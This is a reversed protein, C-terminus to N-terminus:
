KALDILVIDSNERSSDFVIAKGDPTIDFAATIDFRGLRSQNSLRTLPRTKKTALDLVWFNPSQSRPLYVLGTGNPLFRHVGPRGQVPPMEVPAGDERVGLLPAIQGTVLAGGYVILNGTPSWVPNAAQGAVLRVPAGGDVPIKFLAPGQTDDNGGTVIWRGDPSWDATGQIDISEALGRLGTGDASMIALRRRREKTLVVAVRSGDRSVAPPDFLAGDAGTRIEFSRGNEFRWLGDATGRASLYFLSTGGFRPALARATPMRYPQVDRDEAPRDLIPVTWLSATPNVITAVVRRGDRSAAVSTYQELGWSVRRTVKTDPDLRWLWPGSGDPARAVYLLTHRDLPALFTVATNQHTLREPSGGSPRLRWVDMEDTWNLQHQFGHVFYLWQDDPSWVPNHNHMREAVGAWEAPDSPTINIQRADGATRDALFLVDGGTKFFALRAGDSSWSPAADGEGLFARPTGGALPIIMKRSLVPDSAVSFWIAAGDGSFGFSRILRPTSGLSPINATLNRFEGTGVQSLWIDYEGDKDAVFAVFKGDPSIEAGGESGEWDTFRSFTASALPNEQSTPPRRAAWVGVSVTVAAFAIWPLWAARRRAPIATVGTVDSAGPLVERIADIEIRVDGIDRLRQKPDKALSRLLVRRVAAPTATPLASWDPERELIKGITDSATEGAFPVRATLMEYLVCGFAWIDTRKDIAKGRAQEPSMYAVTGLMVGDRTGGITVTPSQTLDPASADASIPKALGFDLVKVVGDPTIKINAPKLDRHVIGKEHAAELAEAIQRAIPLASAIALGKGIGSGEIREALTTGDVRELILFRIGDAEELGYIACINPHNLAALMRAEREFRALRDPDSTLIPPLIKIAVDRGLKADRARYVEGMGGAGLLELVHYGGLTHGSMAAPTIESAVQAAARAPTGFFGDASVPENLLSEVERRLSEDDRCSDDLFLVREGSPRVRAAHYLEEVRKWREPTMHHAPFAAM